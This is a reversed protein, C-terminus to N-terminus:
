TRQQSDVVYTARIAELKKAKGKINWVMLEMPKFTPDRFTVIIRGFGWMREMLDGTDVTTTFADRNIQRGSETLGTERNRASGKLAILPAYADTVELAAPDASIDGLISENFLGSSSIVEDVDGLNDYVGGDTLVM